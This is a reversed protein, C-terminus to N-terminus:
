AAPGQDLDRIFEIVAQSFVDNRDGAVMHGAGTVDVFRAHPVLELFDRVSSESVLESMNGRVLLTPISVRRAARRLREPDRRPRREGKEDFLFRPDWHWRYRGDEGRRLNKALGSLDKPRPRHPLYAAVADAAEEISAFGSLANASMFGVIREVGEQEVQPTIDVLVLASFVPREAEGEAVLASMGGLSAGVLVPRHAMSDAIATLDAAFYDPGYNGDPSWDSSGHGRLDIAVAHWGERALARATNKWAHHTQGGGHALLVSPAQPDGWAEGRLTVGDKMKYQAARSRQALEAPSPVSGESIDQNM